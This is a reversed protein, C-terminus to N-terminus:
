GARAPGAELRREVRHCRLADELGIERTRFLRTPHRANLTPHRARRTDSTAHATKGEVSTVRGKNQSVRAGWDFEYFIGPLGNGSASCNSLASVSLMRGATPGSVPKIPIWVPPTHIASRSCWAKLGLTGSAVM